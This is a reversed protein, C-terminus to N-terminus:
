GKSGSPRQRASTTIRLQNATSHVNSRGISGHRARHRERGSRIAKDRRSAHGAHACTTAHDDVRTCAAGTTTSGRTDRGTRTRSTLAPANSSSSTRAQISPACGNGSARTAREADARTAHLDRSPRATHGYGSGASNDLATRAKARGCGSRGRTTSCGQSHQRTRRCATSTPRQGCGAAVRETTGRNSGCNCSAGAHHVM